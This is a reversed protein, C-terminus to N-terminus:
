DNPKLNSDCDFKWKLVQTEDLEQTKSLSIKFVIEKDIGFQYYVDEAVGGDFLNNKPNKLSLKEKDIEFSQRLLLLTQILSSKGSGNLGTLLNLNRMELDVEKLSKFNKIYLNQIM